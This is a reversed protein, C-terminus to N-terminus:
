ICHVKRIETNEKVTSTSAIKYYKNKKYFKNLIKQFLTILRETNLMQNNFLFYFLRLVPTIEKVLQRYYKFYNGM